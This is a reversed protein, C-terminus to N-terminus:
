HKARRGRTSVRSYALASVAFYKGEYSSTDARATSRVSAPSAQPSRGHSFVACDVTVRPKARHRVVKPLVKLPCFGVAVAVALCPLQLQM